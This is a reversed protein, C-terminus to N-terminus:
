LADWGLGVFADYVADAVAQEGAVNLHTNGVDVHWALDDGQVVSGATIKGAMHAYTDIYPVNRSTAAALQKARVAARTPHEASPTDGGSAFNMFHYGIVAIRPVGQSQVADIWTEINKQTDIEVMDGIAPATGLPTELTIENDSRASIRRGEGNVIVWGGPELRTKYADTVAFSSVSPAVDDVIAIPGDNAGAYITAISPRNTAFFAPLQHVMEASSDGSWGFNGARYSEGLADAVRAAYFQDEGVGWIAENTNFTHSDGEAHYVHRFPDLTLRAARDIPECVVVIETLYGDLVRLVRNNYGGLGIHAPTSAALTSDEDTQIGGEDIFTKGNADAGFVVRLPQDASLPTDSLTIDAATGDGTVFRFSEGSIAYLSFRDTGTNDAMMVYRQETSDVENLYFKAYVTCASANYPFISTSVAASFDRAASVNLGKVPDIELADAGFITLVTAPDGEFANAPTSTDNIRMKAATFDIAFGDRAGLVDFVYPEPEPEPEPPLAPAGFDLSLREARPVDECVVMIEKIYGDLPRLVKSRHGGIGFYPHAIAALQVTADDVHVGADDVYTKGNADAGFVATYETDPAHTLTTQELHAATGDGTVFRFTQGAVAYNIFRDTGASDYMVLYRQDSSTQANLRYKVYVTCANTNNPFLATDLAIGFDRTADLRLGRVPDYEFGDNGWRTLKAEPDGTFNNASVGSDNIRMQRAVFDIAFGDRTGLADLVPASVPPPLPAGVVEEFVGNVTLSTSLGLFM